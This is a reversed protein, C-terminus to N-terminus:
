HSRPHPPLPFAFGGGHQDRRRRDAVVAVVAAILREGLVARAAVPEERVDHGIKVKPRVDPAVFTIANSMFNSIALRLLPRNGM